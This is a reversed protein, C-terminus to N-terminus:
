PEYPVQVRFFHNANTAYQSTIFVINTGDGLLTGQPLAPWMSSNGLRNTALLLNQGVGAGVSNRWEARYVTDVPIILISAPDEALINWTGSDLPAGVTFDSLITNTTGSDANTIGINITSVTIFKGINPEGNPNVGLFFQVGSAFSNADSAQMVGRAKAGNPATLTFDTDNTLSITWTGAFPVNTIGCLFGSGYFMSTDNTGNVKYALTAISGGHGDSEVRLRVVNPNSIESSVFGNPNAILWLYALFNTAGM